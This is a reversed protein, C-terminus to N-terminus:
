DGSQHKNVVHVRECDNAVADRADASVTDTGSGCYVMDRAGDSASYIFDNGSGGRLTDKGANGWIIDRGLGGNVIDNGSGGELRDAGVVGMLTDNGGLGAIHDNLTTGLLVNDLDDGTIDNYVVAMAPVAAMMLLLAGMTFM